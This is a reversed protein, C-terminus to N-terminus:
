KRAGAPPPIDTDRLLFKGDTAPGPFSVTPLEPHPGADGLAAAFNGIGTAGVDAGGPNIGIMMAGMILVYPNVGIQYLYKIDKNLLAQKDAEELRFRDM